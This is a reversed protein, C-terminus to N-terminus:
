PAEGDGERLEIRRISTSRGTEPDAEILVAALRADGRAPRFRAPRDELFRLLVAEKEVGIVSDYPGTMGVDTVYATGEPLVRADATPVHTHTGVVATARGDLYWGFAVKESTAEAHFDFLVLKTERRLTELLADAARFPDDVEPLFVRGILNVIAVRAGNRAAVLCSGSGHSPQRFNAPRLLRPNREIYPVIERRDWVHNGTTIADVGLAFIADAIEPTIGAGGAANEANVVVLHPELERKLRRLGIRLIRRGASAVIDGVFLIRM